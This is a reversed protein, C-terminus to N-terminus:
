VTLWASSTSWAQVRHVQIGRIFHVNGRGSDEGVLTAVEQIGKCSLLLLRRAVSVMRTICRARCTRCHVYLNDAPPTLPPTLPLACDTTPNLIYMKRPGRSAQQRYVM